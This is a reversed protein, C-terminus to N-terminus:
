LRDSFVVWAPFLWFCAMVGRAILQELRLAFDPRSPAQHEHIDINMIQEQITQM